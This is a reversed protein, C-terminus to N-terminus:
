SASRRWSRSQRLAAQAQALEAAQATERTVDRGAAYTMGAAPAAVWSIWRLSGDKHRCRNVLRPQGGEAALEYGAVTAAHDEALVFENVHRGVLEEPPYGLLATWAPNVRRLHGAFDIVVMLDPSTEWMRDREATREAVQQELTENLEQLRQEATRRATVDTFLVAVRNGERPGVPFAFVDFCRGLAGASREFREAEGTRAVRGYTEYWEEELALPVERLWRGLVAKPLGTHRHFAPNAELVRYDARGDPRDFRLEIVCFGSDVMEFLTRYREDSERLAAEAQRARDRRHLVGGGDRRPARARRVLMWRRSGDRCLYEKEYPGIRGTEARRQLQRESEAIWEPPTLDRWGLAGAAVAERAHGTMRLFADNAELLRGEADSILVGVIDTDLISRLLTEARQAASRDRLMWLVGAPAETGEARLATAEIGARIPAGGAGILWGERCVRRGALAAAIDAGPLGRAREAAPLIAAIRTAPGAAGDWGFLRGAGSNWALVLGDRDTTVIACDVASEIVARLDAERLAVAAQGAALGADARQLTAVAAQSAILRAQAEALRHGPSGARSRRAPGPAARRSRPPPAARRAPRWGATRASARPPSRTRRGPLAAGPRRWNTGCGRWRGRWRPRKPLIMGWGRRRGTM